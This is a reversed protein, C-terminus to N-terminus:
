KKKCLTKFLSILAKIQMKQYQVVNRAELSLVAYSVVKYGFQRPLTAHSSLFLSLFMGLLNRGSSHHDTARSVTDEAKITLMQRSDLKM